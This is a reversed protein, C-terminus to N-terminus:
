KPPRRIEAGAWREMFRAIATVDEAGAGQTVAFRWVRAAQELAWMPVGLTAAEALGLTVDKDLVSLAAGFAFRGSVVEELVRETAVSRGTGANIMALMADPDLGAKAGMALSECAAVLNSAFMLNNVLKMVQAQGPTDGLVFVERGIRRLWPDLEAVAAPAGAALMALTGARAGAPGGSIPADVVAVGRAGLRAAIGEVARKGITSMEAYVRVARGSAVAAAVEESAASDPLCAFVVRAADAVAAPSACHVAGRAVFPEMAAPRPDFVHLRVDEALLREAMPAGMQGLGLFGISTINAM